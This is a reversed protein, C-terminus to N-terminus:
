NAGLEGAHKSLSKSFVGLLEKIENFDHDPILARIDKANTWPVRPSMVMNHVAASVYAEMLGVNNIKGASLMSSSRELWKEGFVTEYLEKLEPDPKLVLKATGKGELGLPYILRRSAGHVKHWVMKCGNDVEKDNFSRLGFAHKWYQKERDARADPETRAQVESTEGREIPKQQSADFNNANNESVVPNLLEGTRAQKHPRAQDAEPAVRKLNQKPIWAANQITTASSMDADNQSVASNLLAGTRSQKHPRAQDAEPAGRKLNQKPIWAANQISTANSTGAQKTVNVSAGGDPERVNTLSWSRKTLDHDPQEPPQRAEQSIMPSSSTATKAKKGAHAINSENMMEASPGRKQGTVPTTASAAASVMALSANSFPQSEADVRQSEQSIDEEAPRVNAKGKVAPKSQLTQDQQPVAEEPTASGDEDEEARITAAPTLGLKTRYAQKLIKSGKMFLDKVSASKEKSKTGHQRAVQGLVERYKKSTMDIEEGVPGGKPQERIKLKNQEIIEDLVGIQDGMTTHQGLDQDVRQLALKIALQRHEQATSAM